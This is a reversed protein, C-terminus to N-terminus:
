LKLFIQIYQAIMYGFGAVFLIIVWMMLYVMGGRNFEETTMLPSTMFYAYSYFLYYFFCSLWLIVTYVAKKWTLVTSVVVDNEKNIRQILNM